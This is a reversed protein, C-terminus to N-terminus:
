RTGTRERSVPADPGLGPTDPAMPLTFVFTSGGDPASEKLVVSGHMHEALTRSIYLGLGSGGTDRRLGREVQSFREFLRYRQEAPIGVGTDQVYTDVAGNRTEHWIEVGGRSTFKIANDVLNILVQLAKEGDMLVPPVASADPLRYTLTLGKRGADPALTAIAQAVLAPLTGRDIQVRIKGQDLRAADLFHNVLRILRATADHIETLVHRVREGLAGLAGDLILETNGKIVTLPTRIEHSAIHFFDERMREMELEAAVDQLSCIVGLPRGDPEAFPTVTLTVPLPDADGRRALVRRRSARGRDLAERIPHEGDGWAAGDERQVTLVELLPRGGVEAHRWGFMREAARNCFQISGAQDLVILGEGMNAVITEFKEKERRLLAQHEASRRALLYTFISVFLIGAIQFVAVPAVEAIPVGQLVEWGLEAALSAIGIGAAVGIYRPPLGWAAGLVPLFFLFFLPTRLGGTLHMVAGAMGMYIVTGWFARRRLNPSPPLRFWVLTFLSAALALTYLGVRNAMAQQTTGALTVLLIVAWTIGEAAREFAVVAPRETEVRSRMMLARELWPHVILFGAPIAYLFAGPWWAQPRAVAVTLTLLPVAAVAYALVRRSHRRTGVSALLAVAGVLLLVAVVPRYALLDRYIPLRFARPAMALMLGVAAEFLFVTVVLSDVVRGERREPLLELGACVSNVMALALLAMGGLLAGLRFAAWGAAILPLVIIVNGLVRGTRPLVGRTMQLIFATVGFFVAGTGYATLLPPAILRPWADPLPVALVAIGLLIEIIGIALPLTSSTFSPM